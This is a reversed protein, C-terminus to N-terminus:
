DFHTQLNPLRHIHMCYSLSKDDKGFSQSQAAIELAVAAARGSISGYYISGSLQNHDTPLLCFINNIGQINYVFQDFNPQRSIEKIQHNTNQLLIQQYPIM